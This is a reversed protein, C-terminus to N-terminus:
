LNRWVKDRCIFRGFLEFGGKSVCLGGYDFGDLGWGGVM